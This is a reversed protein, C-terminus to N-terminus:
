FIFTLSYLHSRYIGDLIKLVCLIFYDGYFSWPFSVFTSSLCRLEKVTLWIFIYNLCDGIGGIDVFHVTFLREDGFLVFRFIYRCRCWLYLYVNSFVSPVILRHIIWLFHCCLICLVFDFVVFYFWLVIQTLPWQVWVCM